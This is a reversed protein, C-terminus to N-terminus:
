WIYQKKSELLSKFPKPPKIFYHNMLVDIQIAIKKPTFGTELQFGPVDDLAFKM